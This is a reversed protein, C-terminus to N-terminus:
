KASFIGEVGQSTASRQEYQQQEDKECLYVVGDLNTGLSGDRSPWRQISRNNATPTPAGHYDAYDEQFRVKRREGGESGFRGRRSSDYAPEMDFSGSIGGLGLSSIYSDMEYQFIAEDNQDELFNNGGRKSTTPSKGLGKKIKDSFASGLRKINNSCSFSFSIFHILLDFAIIFNFYALSSLFLFM